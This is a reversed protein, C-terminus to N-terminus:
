ELVAEAYSREASVSRLSSRRGKAIKQELNEGTGKTSFDSLNQRFKGIPGFSLLSEDLARLSRM